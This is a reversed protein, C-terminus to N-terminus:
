FSVRATAEQIEWQLGRELSSMLGPKIAFVMFTAYFHFQVYCKNEDM